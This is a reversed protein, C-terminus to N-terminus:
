SLFDQMGKLTVSNQEGCSECVFEETHVMAPISEMFKGIKTFQEQTMNEIFEVVEERAVDKTSVREEETLIADICTAVLEFGMELENGNLDTNQIDVYSPYKMEVSISPTLEIIKGDQPVDVKIQSVDIDIENKHECSSCSLLVTTSEGVSKSRIQTFLYEIDFTTLSDVDIEEQICSKLTDVIAVLTQKQDGSEFAIMLVKEEKVL